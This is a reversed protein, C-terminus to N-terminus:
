AHAVISIKYLCQNRLYYATFSGVRVMKWLLSQLEVFQAHTSRQVEVLCFGDRERADAQVMASKGRQWIGGEFTVMAPMSVTTIVLPLADACHVAFDLLSSADIFLTVHM